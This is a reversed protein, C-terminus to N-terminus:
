KESEDATVVPTTEDIPAPPKITNLRKYALSEENPVKAPKDEPQVINAQELQTEPAPNENKEPKLDQNKRLEALANQMQQIWGDLEVQLVQETHDVLSNVNEQSLQEEASLANWWAKVNTLNTATQNYKTLTNETQRYGLYTGLAAVVTTTLAIWVPQHIAALFTGIGGVVFITISLVMLQKGLRVSRKRFYSLQDGLRVAIYRDASLNSFGDDGGQAGYMNPPFGMEKNYPILYSSNVETRMTRTTIDEIKKTLQQEPKTSYDSTRTRYRFIERKISEAAARLLLWKNGQKFRNAITVLITLTIPIILLVIYAANSSLEMFRNQVLRNKMVEEIIALATGVVGTIIITQQIKDFRKQQRNANLDYDAFTEWAQMLVKDVGLASAILNGIGNAPSNLSHFYLKGDAIIEALSPDEPASDKKQWGASVEDALGGSGEVIIVTFKQRVAQLLMDKTTENGGTVIALAPVKRQINKNGAKGPRNILQFIVKNVIPMSEVSGGRTLIFHSHNVELFANTVSDGQMTVKDAPTFGLLMSKHERDAVAKGILEMVGTPLGGDIILAEADLAAPAIGRSFLQTLKPLLKDDFNISNGLNLFVAKYPELHLATVIDEAKDQSAPFVLLAERKNPFGVTNNKIVVKRPHLVDSIKSFINM